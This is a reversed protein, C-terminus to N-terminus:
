VVVATSKLMGGYHPWQEFIYPDSLMNSVVSAAMVSAFVKWSEHTSSSSVAFDSVGKVVVWELKM